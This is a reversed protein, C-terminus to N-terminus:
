SVQIKRVEDEANPNAKAVQLASLSKPQLLSPYADETPGHMHVGM